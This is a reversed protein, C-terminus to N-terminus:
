TRRPIIAVIEGEIVAKGGVSCTTAFTTAIFTIFKHIEEHSKVEIRTKVTAGIKVPRKFGLNSSFAISGPMRRGVLAPIFSAILTGHAIPGKFCSTEAYDGAVHIPNNDGTIQAFVAVMGETVLCKSEAFMGIALDELKANQPIEKQIETQIEQM